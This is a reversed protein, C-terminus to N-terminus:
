VAVKVVTGVITAGKPCGFALRLGLGTAHLGAHATRLALGTALALRSHALLLSNVRALLAHSIGVAFLAALRSLLYLAGLVALGQPENYLSM